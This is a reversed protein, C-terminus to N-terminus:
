QLSLLTDGLLEPTEFIFQPQEAALEERNSYGWLVRAGSMGATRAAILDLDRDGIMLSNLSAVKNNVLDILQESKSVGYKSGSVFDFYHDLKFEKLVKIAYKEFKSTCVGM